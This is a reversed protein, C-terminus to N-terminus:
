SSAAGATYGDAHLGGAPRARRRLRKDLKCAALEGALPRRGASCPPACRCASSRWDAAGRGADGVVHPEVRRRATGTVVLISMPRAGRIQAEGGTQRRSGAAHRRAVADAQNTRAPLRTRNRAVAGASAAWDAATVRQIEKTKAKKIGMLTAYRLKNIGSQITLLAPLPMEVHQFWGDELERKVRIGGDQREVQWSSPPTRCAWCNPWSRRRDPRLRPRRIAPRHPDPRAKRARHRQPWCARRRRAHDCAGTDDDEIHIARDAGKALAERITQPPARRARRVARGSRRRAEGETAAGRRARLCGARQNRLHSRSGRDLTGSPTSACCAFRPCPGAQHAVVIKMPVERAHSPPMASAAVRSLAQLDPLRQHRRVRLLEVARVRDEDAARPQARLRSRVRPDPTEYNITPPAIQDRIALM